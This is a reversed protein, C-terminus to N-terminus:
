VLSSSASKTIRLLPKRLCCYNHMYVKYRRRKLEGLFVYIYLLTFYECGYFTAYCLVFLYLYIDKVKCM